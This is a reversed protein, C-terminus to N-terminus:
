KEARGQEVKWGKDELLQVLGMKGSFHGAGVVVYIDEDARLWADIKEAMQVNRDDLLKRYYAQMREDSGIQEALFADLGEVDGTKWLEVMLATQEQLGDMQGLTESLMLDDLEDDVELFLKMQSEITELERVPKGAEKAQDLFHKDIGLEMNFGQRQYENMTLILAVLGPKFKSYMVLPEGKEAAFAELRAYLEPDLRDKLTQSGPLMGQQMMLVQTKQLNEPSTADVEVALADAATFADEFPAPLPFFDEQGVHISGAMTVTATESRIEWQYIRPGSAACGTLSLILLASVALLLTHRMLRRQPNMM